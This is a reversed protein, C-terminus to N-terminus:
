PRSATLGSSSADPEIPWPISQLKKEHIVYPKVAQKLSDTFEIFRHDAKVGITENRLIILANQSLKEFPQEASEPKNAYAAKLEEDSVEIRPAVDSAYVAEVLYTDVQRTVRDAVEPEEQLRRRRAELLLCRQVVQNEIWREILPLVTPNPRAGKAMDKEADGVTYTTDGASPDNYTALVQAQQEPTPELPTANAAAQKLRENYMTFIAQGGGPAVKVQYEDRLQEYFRLAQARQKRQRMMAMLNTRQSDLPAQGSPKRDVAKMIFWGEAPAALPGVVQGLPASRMQSDLPEVLDGSLRFGLDGGPPLTGTVDYRDAVANFAEGRKLAAIAEDAAERSPTYVVQLHTTSDRWGHLTAIEDDTV